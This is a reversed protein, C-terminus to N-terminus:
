LLFAYKELEKHHKIFYKIIYANRFKGLSFLHTLIEEKNAWTVKYLFSYLHGFNVTDVRTIKLYRDIFFRELGETTGTLSHKIKTCQILHNLGKDKNRSALKIVLKEYENYIDLDDTKSCAEIIGSILAHSITGKKRQNILSSINEDEIWFTKIAEYDDKSLFEIHSKLQKFLWKRNNSSNYYQGSKLHLILSIVQDIQNKLSFDPILRILKSIDKM